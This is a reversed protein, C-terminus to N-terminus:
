RKRRRKPPTTPQTTGPKKAARGRVSQSPQGSAIGQLLRAQVEDWSDGEDPAALYAAHRREIEPRHEPPVPLEDEHERALSDWLDVALQVREAPTLHRFDFLPHAM